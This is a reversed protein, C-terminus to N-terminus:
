AVGKALWERRKRERAEEPTEMEEEEGLTVYKLVFDSVWSRINPIFKGQDKRWSPSAKDKELKALAKELPPSNEDWEIAASGPNDRKHKPYARYFALWSENEKFIAAARAGRTTPKKKIGAKRIKPPPPPASNPPTTFEPHDTKKNGATPNFELQENQTKFKGSALPAQEAGKVNTFTKYTTKTHLRQIIPDNLNASDDNLNAGDDNWDAGDDNRIQDYLGREINDRDIRYYKRRSVGGEPQCSVIAGCKELAIFHKKIKEVGWFPFYQRQWDEYTNYIWREGNIEKGNSEVRLLWHLQQLILANELGFKIALTPLVQLPPEEILLSAHKM